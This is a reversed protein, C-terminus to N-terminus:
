STREQQILLSILGLRVWEQDDVVALFFDVVCRGQVMGTLLCDVCVVLLMAIMIM